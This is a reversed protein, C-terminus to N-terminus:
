YLVRVLAQTIDFLFLNSTNFIYCAKGSPGLMACLEGPVLAFTVNTLLKKFHNNVLINYSVNVVDLRLGKMNTQRSEKRFCDDAELFEDIKYLQSINEAELM